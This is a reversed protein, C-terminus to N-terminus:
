CSSFRIFSLCFLSHRGDIYISPEISNLGISTYYINCVTWIFLFWYTNAWLFLYFTSNLLLSVITTLKGEFM